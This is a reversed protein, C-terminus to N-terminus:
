HLSTIVGLQQLPLKCLLCLSTWIQFSHCVPSNECDLILGGLNVQLIIKIIEKVCWFPFFLIFSTPFAMRLYTDTIIISINYLSFNM